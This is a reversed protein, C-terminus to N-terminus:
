ERHNRSTEKRGAPLIQVLFGVIGLGIWSLARVPLSSVGAPLLKTLKLLSFIATVAVLSGLFATLFSLVPRQLSLALIGGLIGALGLILLNYGVTPLLLNRVILVASVAGLIFIAFKLILFMLLAGLVGLVVILILFGPGTLHLSFAIVRGLYAGLVLGVVGLTFRLLRYGLFCVHLGLFTATLAVFTTGTLEM